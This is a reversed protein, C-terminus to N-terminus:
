RGALLFLLDLAMRAVRAPKEGGNDKMIGELEDDVGHYDPNLRGDPTFGEFIFATPIGEEAWVGGDQRDFYEDIDRDIKSFGAAKAAADVMPRLRNPKGKADIDCVSIQEASLRAVMDVNIAAVTKSLPHLPKKAYYGSGLLGKEEGATFIFIVSRGPGRGEGKLRALESVMSLLVATGSANDDAGNYIRDKGRSRMGIHDYHASVIVFEDKLSPDSGEVIGVVNSVKGWEYFRAKGINVGSTRELYEVEHIAHEFLRPGYSEPAGDKGQAKASSRFKDLPAFGYISFSQLFGGDAGVGAVGNRKLEGAIYAAAMDLGKSPSDRGEYRDDSLESIHALVSESKISDHPTGAPAAACPLPRCLISPMPFLLEF